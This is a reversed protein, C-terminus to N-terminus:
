GFLPTDGVETPMVDWEPGWQLFELNDFMSNDLFQLEDLASERGWLPNTNWTLSGDSFLLGQIEQTIATAEEAGLFEPGAAFAASVRYLLPSLREASATAESWRRGINTLLRLCRPLHVDLMEAVGPAHLDTGISMWCADLAIVATEFLIHVGHWPYFLRRSGEQTGYDDILALACELVIRRDTDTRTAMRLTPRHIRARLHNFQVHKFELMGYQTYTKAEEYWAMLRRTIDEIWSELTSGTTEPPDDQLHMVRHVETEFQRYLCIYKASAKKRADETAFLSDQNSEPGFDLQAM